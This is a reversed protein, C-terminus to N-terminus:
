RLVGRTPTPTPLIIFSPRTPTATPRLPVLILRTATATPRVCSEIDILPPGGYPYEFVQQDTLRVYMNYSMYGAQGLMYTEAESGVPVTVALRTSGPYGPGEGTNQLAVEFSPSVISPGNAPALYEYRLWAEDVLGYGSLIVEFTVETPSCGPGYGANQSSAGYDHVEYVESEPCPTIPMQATTGEGAPWKSENLDNDIALYMYEFTGPDDGFLAAADAGLDPYEFRFHDLADLIGEAQMVHDWWPGTKEPVGGNLRYRIVVHMMGEPQIEYSAVLNLGVGPCAELSEPINSEVFIPGPDPLPALDDVPGPTPSPGPALGVDSIPVNCGAVLTLL